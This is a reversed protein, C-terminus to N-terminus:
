NNLNMITKVIYASTEICTNGCGGEGEGGGIIDDTKYVGNDSTPIYPKLKSIEGVHKHLTFLTM